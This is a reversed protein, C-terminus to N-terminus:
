RWAMVPQDAFVGAQGILPPLDGRNTLILRVPLLGTVLASTVFVQWDEHGSVADAMAPLLMGGAVAALLLGIIFFITRNDSM